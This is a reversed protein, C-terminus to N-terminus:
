RISRTQREQKWHSSGVQLNRFFFEDEPFRPRWMIVAHVATDKLDLGVEVAFEVFGPSVYWSSSLSAWYQDADGGPNGRQRLLLGSHPQGYITSDGRDIEVSMQVEAVEESSKGLLELGFPIELWLLGDESRWTPDARVVFAGNEGDVPEFHFLNRGPQQQRQAKRYTDVAEEVSLPIWDQGTRWESSDGRLGAKEYLRPANVIATSIQRGYKAKQDSLQIPWILSSLIACLIVIGAAVWGVRRLTKWGALRGSLILSSGAALALVTAMVVYWTTYIFYRIDLGEGRKLSFWENVVSLVLGSWALFLLSGVHAHAGRRFYVFIVALTVLFLLIPLLDTLTGFSSWFDRSESWFSLMRGLTPHALTGGAGAWYAILASPTAEASLYPNDSFVNGIISFVMRKSHYIWLSFSAGLPLAIAHIALLGGAVLAALSAGLAMVWSGRKQRALVLGVGWCFFPLLVVALFMVRGLMWRQPSLSQVYAMDYGSITKLEEPSLGGLVWWPCLLLVGGLAVWHWGLGPNRNEMGIRLHRAGAVLLCVGVFGLVPFINIKTFAAASLFFGAGWFCALFRRWSLQQLGILGALAGAALFVLSWVEVRLWSSHSLLSLTSSFVVSGLLALVVSKTLLFLLFYTLVLLVLVGVLAWWKGARIAVELSKYFVKPDGEVLSASFFTDPYDSFWSAVRHHLSGLAATSAGPWVFSDVGEGGAAQVIQAAIAYDGDFRASRYFPTDLPREVVFFSVLPAIWSLLVM